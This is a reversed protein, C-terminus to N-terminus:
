QARYGMGFNIHHVFFLVQDTNSTNFANFEIKDGPRVDRVMANISYNWAQNKNVLDFRHISRTLSLPPGVGGVLISFCCELNPGQAGAGDFIAAGHATFFMDLPEEHQFTIDGNLDITCFQSFDVVYTGQVKVPVLVGPFTTYTTENFSIGFRAKPIKPFEFGNGGEGPVIPGVLNGM